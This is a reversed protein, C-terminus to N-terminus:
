IRGVWSLKIIILDPSILQNVDVAGIVCFFLFIYSVASSINKKEEKAYWNLHNNSRIQQVCGGTEATHQMQM